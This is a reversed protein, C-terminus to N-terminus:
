NYQKKPNKKQNTPKPENHHQNFTWDIAGRSNWEKTAFFLLGASIVFAPLGTYTSMAFKFRQGKNVPVATHGSCRCM